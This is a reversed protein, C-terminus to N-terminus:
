IDRDCTGEDKAFGEPAEKASIKEIMGGIGFVKAVVEMELTVRCTGDPQEAFRYAGTISLKERMREPRIVVRIVDSGM